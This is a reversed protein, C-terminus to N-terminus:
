RGSHWDRGQRHARRDCRPHAAQAFPPDCPQEESIGDLMPRTATSPLVPAVRPVSSIPCRSNMSCRLSSLTGSRSPGSSRAGSSVCTALGTHAALAVLTEESLPLEESGTLEMAFRRVLVPIDEPRDRLSPLVVRAGALRYYLDARFSGRNVEQRLDRNTARVVRVDIEIERDGGV